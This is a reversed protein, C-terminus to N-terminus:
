SIPVGAAIFLETALDDGLEARVVAPTVKKERLATIVKDRWDKVEVQAAPYLGFLKAEDKAAGLEARLDGVLQARMRIDRRVSIHEAILYERNPVTAELIHGRAAKIYNWGQRETVAYDASITQVIYTAEQGSLIMQRVAEVRMAYELKNSKAV